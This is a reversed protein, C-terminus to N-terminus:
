RGREHGEVPIDERGQNLRATANPRQQFSSLWFKLATEQRARSSGKAVGPTRVWPRQSLYSHRLHPLQLQLSCIHRSLGSLPNLTIPFSALRGLEPLLFLFTFNILAGHPMM